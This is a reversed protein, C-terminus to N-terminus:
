VTIDLSNGLNPNVPKAAQRDKLITQISSNAGLASFINVTTNPTATGSLVGFIGSSAGSNGQLLSAVGSLTSTSTTGAIAGATTGSVQQILTPIGYGLPNSSTSSITTM